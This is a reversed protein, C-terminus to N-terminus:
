GIRFVPHDDPDPLRATLIDITPRYASTELYHGVALRREDGTVETARIARWSGAERLDAAGAARLNRAWHSDGLIAVLYRAGDLEVPRVNVTRAKGSRRGAVRLVPLGSFRIMLAGELFRRVPSPRLYAAM